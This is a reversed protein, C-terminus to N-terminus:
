SAHSDRPVRLPHICTKNSSRGAFLVNPKFSLITVLRGGLNILQRVLTQVAEHRALRGNLITLAIVFTAEVYTYSIMYYLPMPRTSDMIFGLMFYILWSILLFCSVTSVYILRKYDPDSLESKHLSEIEFNTLWTYFLYLLRITGLLKLALSITLLVVGVLNDSDVLTQIIGLVAYFSYFLTVTHSSKLDLTILETDRLINVIVYILFFERIYFVLPVYVLGNIPIMIFFIATNSIIVITLLKLCSIIGKPDRSPDQLYDFSQDLIFPLAASLAAILAYFFSEM